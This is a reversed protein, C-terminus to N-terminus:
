GYNGKVREKTPDFHPFTTVNAKLRKQQGDLQGVEVECGPASHTVDVRALAIVKGLIPSKVASTIVGVQAKGFRVSDGHAPVLGGEIDLGVLKRHPHAKREEIAKRGIFDDNQTKLPVTFGIGAEFPDTDDSFENGALILGAEIRLMDLAAIGAPLMGKPHGVQWIADFVEEASNPHCFVEYGLEGSFGTRSLVVPTGQIDGLRAITFRFWSLDDVTSQTPPTWFVKSLIERSLPGQVAINHHHDTSSKVWANLRHIEAQDRLWKGSADSGGIWRFNDDGLRFVTGDDIMGGHEYCMATYVIGGVSLKKMNRTVCMQMLAEADPGTIEYKRLPSLDMVVAKERLDSSCV